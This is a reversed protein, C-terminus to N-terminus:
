EAVLVFPGWYYPHSYGDSRIEKRALRLAQRATKGSRLQTFFKEILEPSAQDSTEWLSMLVNRVGAYQFARGLSMVGEGRITKGLGTQCATLAAVEANFKLDMVESMTLFGDSGAANNFQTLVLAPEHIVPIQGNLIGHTAFIVYRFRDLPSNRFGSETAERGVLVSARGANFSGKQLRDAMIGTQTLRPWLGADNAIEKVAGSSERLGGIGMKAITTSFERELTEGTASQKSGFRKARPDASSFIPDAVILARDGMPPRAANFRRQQVLLSASVQYAIDYDDGVFKIGLPIPGYRGDPMEVKDPTSMPLSEFPLIGLIGDPVILIRSTTSILLEGNHDKASLIPALLSDYLAKGSAVDLSALDSFTKVNEFSARYKRVADDLQAWRVPLESAFAITGSRVVFVKTFQDSIDYEILVEDAALEISEIQLAEPFRVAAYDPASKRTDAILSKREAWIEAMEKVIPNDDAASTVQSALYRERAESLRADLRAAASSFKTFSASPEEAMRRSQMELFNRAHASESYYFSGREGMNTRPTVRVLGKYAALRPFGYEAAALLNLRQNEPVKAREMEMGEVALLFHEAAAAYDNLGEDALGLAIYAGLTMQADGRSTGYRDMGRLSTRAAQFEGMGLQCRAIRVPDFLFKWLQCAMAPSGMRMYLEGVGAAAVNKGPMIDDAKKFFDMAKLGEGTELLSMATENYLGSDKIGNREFVELARRQYALATDHFGLMAYVYGLNRMVFADSAFIGAPKKTVLEWAQARLAKFQARKVLAYGDVNLRLGDAYNGLIAEALGLASKSVALNHEIGEQGAAEVARKFLLRAEYYRERNLARVGIDFYDSAPAIRGRESILKDYKRFETITGLDQGLHRSEDVVVRLMRIVGETDKRMEHVNAARFATFYIKNHDEHKILLCEVTPEILQSSLKIDSWTHRDIYGQIRESSACDNTALRNQGALGYYVVAKRILGLKEAAQGASEFLEAAKTPHKRQLKAAQRVTEDLGKVKEPDPVVPAGQEQVSTTSTAPVQGSVKIPLCLAAVSLLVFERIRGMGEAYCPLRQEAM